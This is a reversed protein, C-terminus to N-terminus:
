LEREERVEWSQRKSGSEPESEKLEKWNFYISAIVDILVFENIM